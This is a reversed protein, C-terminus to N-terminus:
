ENYLPCDGNQDVIYHKLDELKTKFPVYKKIEEESVVITGPEVYKEIQSEISKIKNEEDITFKYYM